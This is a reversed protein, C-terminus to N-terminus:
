EEPDGDNALRNMAAVAIPEIEPLLLAVAAKDIHLAEALALAATLDWGVVFCKMGSAVRVQGGLRLVM